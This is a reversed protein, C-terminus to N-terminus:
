VSEKPSRSPSQEKAQQVAATLSPAAGSTGDDFEWKWERKPWPPAKLNPVCDTEIRLRHGDVYGTWLITRRLEVQDVNRKM